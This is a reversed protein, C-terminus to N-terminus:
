EEIIAAFTYQNGVLNDIYWMEGVEPSLSGKARKIKVSVKFERGEDSNVTAIGDNIESVYVVHSQPYSDYSSSVLAMFLWQGLVKELYWVEGVRPLWGKARQVNLPVEHQVKLSDIVIAIAREPVIQQIRALKVEFGGYSSQNVRSKPTNLM